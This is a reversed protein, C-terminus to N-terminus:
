KLISNKVENQLDTSLAFEILPPLFHSIIGNENLVRKPLNSFILRRKCPCSVLDNDTLLKDFFGFSVNSIDYGFNELAYKLGNLLLENKIDQKSIIIIFNSNTRIKLEM